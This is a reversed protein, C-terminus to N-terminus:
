KKYKYLYRNRVNTEKFHVAGSNRLKKFCNTVSGISVKMRESTERSTFWRGRNKKLFTYIEQQGM